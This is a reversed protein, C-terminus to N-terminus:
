LELKEISHQEACLLELVDVDTERLWSLITTHHINTVQEISRASMGQFYMRICFHKVEESYRMQKYTELFQRGCDKCKYCQIQSRYGNRQLQHSGCNPCEM